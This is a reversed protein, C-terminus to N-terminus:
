QGWFIKIATASQQSMGQANVNASNNIYETEPYLLRKQPVLSAGAPYIAPLGTRRYDCFAEIPDLECEAIWKQFLITNIPNTSISFNVSGSASSTMFNDAISGANPVGLYRFSEEVAQKYLTAANGSIMGRQAAEAQMFLSQSASLLLAPASASQLTGLGIFSAINSGAGEANGILAGQTATTDYFFWARPDSTNQLSDLMINNAGYYSSNQVQIGNSYPSSASAGPLFGFDAWFPSQQLAADKFGPNILADQGAGLFGGQASVNSLEGVIYPDTAQYVNPVQRLLLRLKITNAFALWSAKNGKFMVDTIDESTGQSNNIETIASDVQAVLSKYITTASDYKPTQVALPQCAQSYPINGFQDVLDQFVMARMLRAAGVLISNATSDTMVYNYDYINHYLSQWTGNADSFSLAYSQIHAGLGAASWGKQRALYGMWEQAFQNNTTASSVNAGIKNTVTALLAQSFLQSPKVNYIPLGNPDNLNTDLKKSCSSALVVVCLSLGGLKYILNKRINLM